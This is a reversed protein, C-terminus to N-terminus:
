DVVVAGSGREGGVAGGGVGVERLLPGPEGVVTRAVGVGLPGGVGGVPGVIRGVLVRRQAPRDHVVAVVEDLALAVFGDGQEGAADDGCPQGGGVEEAPLDGRCDARDEFGVGAVGDQKKEILGGRGAHVAVDREGVAVVHGA